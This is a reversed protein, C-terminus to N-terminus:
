LHNDEASFLGTLTATAITHAQVAVALTETDTGETLDLMSDLAYLYFIYRHTGSPPYPGVYGVTGASNTGEIAEAPLETEGITQDTPPLNWVTWHTFGGQVPADPDHVIIALSKADAPIHGLTLGPRMNGGAQAYRRPIKTLPDFAPSTIFM